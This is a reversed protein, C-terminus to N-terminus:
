ISRFLYFYCLIIKCRLHHNAEDFIAMMIDINKFNGTKPIKKRLLFKNVFLIIRKVLKYVVSPDKLFYVMKLLNRSGTKSNKREFFASLLTKLVFCRLLRHRDLTNEQIDVLHNEPWLLLPFSNKQNCTLCKLAPKFRHTEKNIMFTSCELHM